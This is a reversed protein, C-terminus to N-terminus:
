KGVAFSVGKSISGFFNNIADNTTRQFDNVVGLSENINHWIGFTKDQEQRRRGTEAEFQRTEWEKERLENARRANALSVWGQQADTIQRARSIDNSERTLSETAYNHRQTEALRQRDLSLGAWAVGENVINHRRTEGLAQYNYALNAYGLSETARNHRSREALDARSIGETALNHRKTEALSQWNQEIRVDEQDLHRANQKEAIHNHRITEQIGQYNVQVALM